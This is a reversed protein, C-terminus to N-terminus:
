QKEIFCTYNERSVMVSIHYLFLFPRMLTDMNRRLFNVKRYFWPCNKIIQLPTQTM